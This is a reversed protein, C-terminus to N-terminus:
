KRLDKEERKGNRVGLWSGGPYGDVERQWWCRLSAPSKGIGSLWSTYLGDCRFCCWPKRPNRYGVVLEGDGDGNHRWQQRSGRKSDM